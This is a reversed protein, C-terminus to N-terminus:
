SAKRPLSNAYCEAWIAPMTRVNYHFHSNINRSMWLVACAKLAPLKEEAWHPPMHGARDSCFYGTISRGTDEVGAAQPIFDRIRPQAKLFCPM